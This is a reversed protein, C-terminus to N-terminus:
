LGLTEKLKIVQRMPICREMAVIWLPLRCEQLGLVEVPFFLCRLPRCFNIAPGPRKAGTVKLCVLRIVTIQSIAGLRFPEAERTMLLEDSSVASAPQVPLGGPAQNPGKVPIGLSGFVTM